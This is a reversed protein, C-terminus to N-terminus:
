SDGYYLIELNSINYENRLRFWLFRHYDLDGIGVGAFLLTYTPSSYSHFFLNSIEKQKIRLLGLWYTAM